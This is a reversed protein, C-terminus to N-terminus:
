SSSQVLNAQLEATQALPCPGSSLSVEVGQRVWTEYGDQVMTVVYTGPRGSETFMPRMTLSDEVSGTTVLPESYDGDQVAGTAGFWRPEGTISDQVHVIVAPNLKAPCDIELPDGCASAWTSFPLLFLAYMRRGQRHTRQAETSMFITPNWFPVNDM